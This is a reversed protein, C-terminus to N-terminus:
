HLLPEDIHLSSKLHPNCVAMWVIWFIRVGQKPKNRGTAKTWEENFGLWVQYLALAILGLGLIAHGYNQVPRRNRSPSKILHIVLGYLAQCVYLLFLVLGIIQLFLSHVFLVRYCLLKSVMHKDNFHAGKSETVASVALAFGAVICPGALGAQVIWHATFWRPWWVRLLRAQLVGIPLFFCFGVASLVGHAIFKMERSTYPISGFPDNNSGSGSSQTPVALATSTASATGTVSSSTSATTIDPVTQTLDLQFAGNFSHQQLNAGVDSSSPKVISLGYIM